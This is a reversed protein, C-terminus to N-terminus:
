LGEAVVQLPYNFFSIDKKALEIIVGFHREYILYIFKFILSQTTQKLQNIHLPAIFLKLGELLSGLMKQFNARLTPFMILQKSNM